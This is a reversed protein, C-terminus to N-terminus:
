LVVRVLLLAEMHLHAAAVAEALHPRQDVDLRHADHVDMHLRLVAMLNQLLGHQAALDDVPQHIVQVAYGVGPLLVDGEVLLLM